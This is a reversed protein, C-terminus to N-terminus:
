IFGRVIGIREFVNKFSFRRVWVFANKKMRQKAGGPDCYTVVWDQSHSTQYCIKHRLSELVMDPLLCALLKSILLAAFICIIDHRMTASSLAVCSFHM